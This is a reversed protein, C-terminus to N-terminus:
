IGLIMKCREGNSQGKEEYSELYHWPDVLDHQPFPELDMISQAGKNESNRGIGSGGDSETRGQHAVMNQGGSRQDSKKISKRAQLGFNRRM